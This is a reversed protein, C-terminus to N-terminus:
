MAPKFEINAFPLMDLSSYLSLILASAIFYFAKLFAKKFYAEYKIIL